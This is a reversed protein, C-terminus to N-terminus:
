LYDSLNLRALRATVAYLTNLQAEAATLAAAAEYPDASVLGSRAIELSTREAANRAEAAAIREEATGIRAALTTRGSATEMLAEGSRRALAAREATNGSLVGRDLLASLALARLTDRIAGDRATADLAVAEGPAIGQRDLPPGGLFALSDYGAPDAFWSDVAQVVDDATVAAATAFSLADLIRDPEALAPGRTETGAFLTRDGVRTNMTGIASAFKAHADQGAADVAAKSGPSAAVLLTPGLSEALGSLTSLGSQMAQAALAAETTASRFGQLHALAADIAALRTFDGAVARGTDRARGTTAEASRHDLEVKLAATQNRLTHSRALDGLSSLAM